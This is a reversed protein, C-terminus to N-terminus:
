WRWLLFHIASLNYYYLSKIFVVWLVPTPPLDLSIVPLTESCGLSAVTSSNVVGPGWPATVLMGFSHARLLLLSGQFWYSRVLFVPAAQPLRVPLLCSSLYGSRVKGRGELSGVTQVWQNAAPLFTNSYDMPWVGLVGLLAFLSPFPDSPAFM